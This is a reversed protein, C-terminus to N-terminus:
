DPNLRPRGGVHGSDSRRRYFDLVLGEFAQRGPFGKVTGHEFLGHLDHHAGPDSSTDPNWSMVFVGDPQLVRHISVLADHLQGGDSLGFGYVGIMLVLDVSAPEMWQDLQHVYGVYHRDSGWVRAAPDADVTIYESGAERFYREYFWTYSACGVFVVRAPREAALGPLMQDTIWRRHPHARFEEEASFFARALARYVRFPLLRRAGPWWRHATLLGRSVTARFTKSAKFGVNSKSELV